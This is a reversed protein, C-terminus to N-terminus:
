GSQKAARLHADLRSALRRGDIGHESLSHHFADADDNDLFTPDFHDRQHGYTNPLYDSDIFSREGVLLKTLFLLKEVEFIIESLLTHEAFVFFYSYDITKPRRIPLAAQGRSRRSSSAYVPPAPVPPTAEESEKSWGDEQSVQLLRGDIQERMAETLDKLAGRCSPLFQPLREKTTLSQGIIWLSLLISSVLDKRLNLVNFCAEKQIVGFAVERCKRLLALLDAVRQLTKIVLSLTYIPKPILSMELQMIDLYERSAMLEMQINEELKAFQKTTEPGIIIGHNMMQRALSLYVTSCQQTLHSITRILYIRAHLPWVFINVLFAAVIGLLIQYGRVLALHVVSHSYFATDPLQPVFLIVSQTFAFVFGVSEARKSYFIFYSAPLEALIIFVATGYRNGQDCIYWAVIAWVAGGITGATRFLSVLITAGTSTELVWIYTVVLWVGREELFWHRASSLWCPLSLLAVGGALKLGFRIHISQKVSSLAGSLRIRWRVVNSQHSWHVLSSFIGRKANNKKSQEQEAFLFMEQNGPDLVDQDFFPQAKSDPLFKGKLWNAPSTSPTWFRKREHAHWLAIITQCTVLAGSVEKAIEMLSVMLFAVDYIDSRFLGFGPHPTATGSSDGAQGTMQTSTTAALEKLVSALDGKFAEIAAGLKHRQHLLTLGPKKTSNQSSIEYLVDWRKDIMIRHPSGGRMTLEISAEVIRISSTLAELLKFICPELTDLDMQQETRVKDAMSVSAEGEDSDTEHGERTGLGMGCSIWGKTRKLTALLPKAEQVNLRQYNIELRASEFSARLQSVLNMSQQRLTTLRSSPKRLGHSGQEQCFFDAVAQNLLSREVRFVSILLVAFDDQASRPFIIVKTLLSVGAALAAPYFQNTFIESQIRTAGTTITWTSSFLLIRIAMKIQPYLSQCLGGVFCLFLLVCAGLAKSENTAYEVDTGSGDIWIAICVTLFSIGLGIACMSIHIFVKEVHDGIPGRPLFFLHLYTLVLFANQGIASSVRPILVLITLLIVASYLPAVEKSIIYVDQWAPLRSGKKGIM